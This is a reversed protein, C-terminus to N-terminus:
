APTPIWYELLRCVSLSYSSSAIGLANSESINSALLTETALTTQRPEPWPRSWSHQIKRGGLFASKTRQSKDCVPGQTQHVLTNHAPVQVFRSWENTTILCWKLNSALNNEFAKTHNLLAHLRPNRGFPWPIQSPSSTLDRRGSM